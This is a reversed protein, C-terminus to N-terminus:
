VLRLIRSYPCNNLNELSCQVRTYRSGYAASVQHSQQFPVSVCVHPNSFHKFFGRFYLKLRTTLGLGGSLPATHCDAMLFLAAIQLQSNLVAVLNLPWTAFLWLSCVPGPQLDLILGQPHYWNTRRLIKLSIFVCEFIYVYINM